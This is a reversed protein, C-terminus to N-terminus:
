FESITIVLTYSDGMRRVGWIDIWGHVKGDTYGISYNGEGSGSDTIACGNARLQQEIQERIKPLFSSEDGERITLEARDNRHYVRGSGLSTSTGGGTVRFQAAGEPSNYIKEITDNASFGSLFASKCEPTGSCAAFPVVVCIVFFQASRRNIM